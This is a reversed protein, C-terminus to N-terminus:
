VSSVGGVATVCEKVSGNTDASDLFRMTAFVERRCINVKLDPDAELRLEFCREPPVFSTRKASYGSEPVIVEKTPIM